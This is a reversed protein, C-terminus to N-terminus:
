DYTVWVDNENHDYVKVVQKNKERERLVNCLNNFIISQIFLIYDKNLSRTWSKYRKM